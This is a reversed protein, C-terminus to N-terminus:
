EHTMRRISRIVANKSYAYLSLPWMSLFRGPQWYLSTEVLEPPFRMALFRGPQWYLSTEVLEPPFRMAM